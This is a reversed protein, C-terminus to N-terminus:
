EVGLLEKLEEGYVLTNYVESNRKFYIYSGPVIMEKYMISANHLNVRRAVTQDSTVVPKVLAVVSCEVSKQEVIIKEVESRYYKHSWYDFKLAVNRSSYQGSVEGQYNLDDIDFVLGDAQIGETECINWFYEMKDKLWNCFENFETPIEEPMIRIMPVVDYGAEKLTMLNDYNSSGLGECKFIKYKLYKYDDDCYDTRLMSLAGSRPVRIQTGNPSILKGIGDMRVYSEGTVYLLNTELDARNNFVRCMNRTVDFSDGRRGRTKFVKPTLFEEGDERSIAGKINVGNIKISLTKVATRTSNCYDFCEKYSEIAKISMSKEEDLYSNYKSYYEGPDPMLNELEFERLLSVPIPDDDYSRFVYSSCLNSEKIVSQLSEYDSDSLLEDAVKYCYRSLIYLDELRGNDLLEDVIRVAREKDM